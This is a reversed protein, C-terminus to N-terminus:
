VGLATEVDLDSSLNGLKGADLELSGRVLELSESSVVCEDLGV